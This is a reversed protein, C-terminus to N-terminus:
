AARAQNKRRHAEAALVAGARAAEQALEDFSPVNADREILTPVPGARRVALAFLAWVPNAVPSGHADIILSAGADDLRQDHGALHFEGVHEVPFADLYGRSDYNHNASSVFINNVDLLLGCGTRRVVERLFDTESM